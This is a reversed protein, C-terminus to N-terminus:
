KVTQATQAYETRMHFCGHLLLFFCFCGFICSMVSLYEVGQYGSFLQVVLNKTVLPSGPVYTSCELCAVDGGAVAVAWTSFDDDWNGEIEQPNRYSIIHTKVIM